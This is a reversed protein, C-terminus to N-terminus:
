RGTESELLGVDILFTRVRDTADARLQQQHPAALAEDVATFPDDIGADIYAAPNYYSQWIADLWSRLQARVDDTTGPSWRPSQEDFLSTVMHRGFRLHRSEDVHHLDNIARAIPELRDDNRMARNFHDAVEEFILARAFFLLDATEPAGHRQLDVFRPGYVKGAYRDCFTGFMASHNNEEALLHHLYSSTDGMSRRYLRNAVGAMLSREGHINLSYFNVAEWFSLRQRTEGPLEEWCPTGYLTCLDPSTYWRERVVRAPFALATPDPGVNRSATVLRNVVDPAITM